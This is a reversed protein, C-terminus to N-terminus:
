QILFQFTEFSDVTFNPFFRDLNFESEEKVITFGVQIFISRMFDTIVEALKETIQAATYTGDFTYWEYNREQDPYYQSEMKIFENVLEYGTNSSDASGGGGYRAKLEIYSALDNDAFITLHRLLLRYTLLLPM